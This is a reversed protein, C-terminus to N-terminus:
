LFLVFAQKKPCDFPCIHHKSQCHTSPPQLFFPGDPGNVQGNIIIM